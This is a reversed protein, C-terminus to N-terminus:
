TADIIAWDEEDDHEWLEREFDDMREEDETPVPYECVFCDDGVEGCHRGEICDICPCTCKCELELNEM